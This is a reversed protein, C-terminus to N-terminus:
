CHRLTSGPSQSRVYRIRNSFHASMRWSTWCIRMPCLRIAARSRCPSVPQISRIARIASQDTTNHDHADTMGMDAAAGGLEGAAALALLTDWDFVEGHLEAAMAEAAALTGHAATGQGMPTHLNQSVVYHAHTADLWAETEFDHVYWAVITQDPHAASHFLMDGIDDVAISTYRGPAVEYAYGAAFRIDSIIMGCQDCVDEGYRIEPPTAEKAGQACGSLLMVLCLAILALLPRHSAAM